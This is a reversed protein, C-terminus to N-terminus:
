GYLDEVGYDSDEDTDMYGIQLYLDVANVDPERVALFRGRAVLAADDGGLEQFLEEAERRLEIFLREIKDASPVGYGLTPTGYTWGKFLFINELERPALEWEGSIKV